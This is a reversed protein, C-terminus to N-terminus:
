SPLTGSGVVNIFSVVRARPIAMFSRGPSAVGGGSSSATSSRVSRSFAVLCSAACAQWRMAPVMGAPAVRLTLKCSPSARGIALARSPLGSDAGLGLSHVVVVPDDQVVGTM